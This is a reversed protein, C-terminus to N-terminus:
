GCKALTQRALAWREFLRHIILCLTVCCVYVYKPSALCIEIYIRFPLMLARDPTLHYLIFIRCVMAECEVRYLSTYCRCKICTHLQISVSLPLPRSSFPFGHRLKARLAKLTCVYFCHFREYHVVREHTLPHADRQTFRAAHVRVRACPICITNCQFIGTGTISEFNLRSKTRMNLKAFQRQRRRAM